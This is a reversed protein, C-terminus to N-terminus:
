IENNFTKEEENGKIFLISIMKANGMSITVENM